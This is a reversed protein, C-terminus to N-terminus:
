SIIFRELWSLDCLYLIMARERAHTINACACQRCFFTHARLGDVTDWLGDMGDSSVTVGVIYM